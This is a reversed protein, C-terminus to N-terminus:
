KKRKCVLKDKGWTVTAEGQHEWFEVDPGAYRSGSGSPQATAIATAEGRELRASPPDTEFYMVMLEDLAHESCRFSFPGRSAVLGYTIQVDLIQSRYESEVCARVNPKKGCDDRAREWGLRVAKLTEAEQPNAKKEASEYLDELKRDLEALASDKCVLKEVEGKATACDRAPGAAAALAATFCAVVAFGAIRM